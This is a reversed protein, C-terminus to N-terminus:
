THLLLQELNVRGLLNTILEGKLECRSTRERIKPLVPPLLRTKHVQDRDWWLAISRRETWSQHARDMGMGKHTTGLKTGESLHQVELLPLGDGGGM